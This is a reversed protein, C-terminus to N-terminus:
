DILIVQCIPVTMSLPVDNTIQGFDHLMQWHENYNPDVGHFTLALFSFISASFPDHVKNFKSSGSPMFPGIKNREDTHFM